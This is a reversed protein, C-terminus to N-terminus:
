ELQDALGGAQALFAEGFLDPHIAVGDLAPLGAPSGQRSGADGREDLKPM